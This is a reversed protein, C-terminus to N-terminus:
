QVVIGKQVFSEHGSSEDGLINKQTRSSHSFDSSVWFEGNAKQDVNEREANEGVRPFIRVWLAFIAILHQSQTERPPNTEQTNSLPFFATRTAILSRYLM